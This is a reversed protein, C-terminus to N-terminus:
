MSDKHQIEAAHESTRITRHNQAVKAGIHDFHFRGFTVLGTM